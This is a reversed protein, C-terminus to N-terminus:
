ILLFLLFHLWYEACGLKECVEAVRAVVEVDELAAVQLDVLLVLHRVHVQLIHRIILFLICRLLLYQLICLLLSPDVIVRNLPHLQLM